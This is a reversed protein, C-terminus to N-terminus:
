RKRTKPQKWLVRVSRPVGDIVTIAGAKQLHKFHAQVTSTSALKRARMVDRYTPPIGHAAIYERVANLTLQQAESLGRETEIETPPGPHKAQGAM